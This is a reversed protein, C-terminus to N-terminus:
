AGCANRLDRGALSARWQPPSRGCFREIAALMGAGVHLLVALPAAPTRSCRPFPCSATRSFRVKWKIGRYARAESPQPQAKGRQAGASDAAALHDDDAGAARLSASPLPAGVDVAEALSADGDANGSAHRARKPPPALAPLEGSAAPLPSSRTEAAPLVSSVASALLATLSDEGARAAGLAFAKVDDPPNLDAPRHRRM